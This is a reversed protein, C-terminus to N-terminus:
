VYLWLEVISNSKPVMGFTGSLTADMRQRINVQEEHQKHKLLHAVALAHTLDCCQEEDVHVLFVGEPSQDFQQRSVFM